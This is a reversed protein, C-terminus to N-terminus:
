QDDDEQRLMLNIATGVAYHVAIAGVRPATGRWMMSRDLTRWDLGLKVNSNVWDLPMTAFAAAAAFCMSSGTILMANNKEKACVMAPLAIGVGCGAGTMATRALQWGAGRFLSRNITLATRSGSTNAQMQTKIVEGPVEILTEVSSAFVGAAVELKRHRTRIVDQHLDQGYVVM